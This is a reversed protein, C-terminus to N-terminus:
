LLHKLDLYINEFIEIFENLKDRHVREDYSVRLVNKHFEKPLKLEMFTPNDGKIKSSCASTSSAFIDKSELHRLLIDSSIKPVVFVLIFPSSNGFEGFPFFLSPVRKKIENRLYRYNEKAELFNKDQTELCEQYAEKFALILPTAVTSSRLSFEQGGGEILPIPNSERKFFLGAIGKPGGIKHSSVSLSDVVADELSINFKSFSQVADIHIHIDKFIKKVKKALNFCDNIVGSQNNVHTLLLIKVSEDLLSLLRNEDITSDANLPISHVSVGKKSLRNAPVVLSPHDGQCLFIKDGKELIKGKIITNNAETASSTFILNYHPYGKLSKLFFDRSDEIKKLVERGFKHAASPNAFDSLSSEELKKLARLRIPASAAFDLYLM